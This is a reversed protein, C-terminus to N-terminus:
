PRRDPHLDINFIVQEGERVVVTQQQPAFGPAEFRVQYRGAPVDVQFTGDPAAALERDAVRVRIKANVRKGAGTRVTGRLSAPLAVKEPTLLVEVRSEAEPVVTVVEQGARFGERAVSLSVLGASVKELTFAGSADTRAVAGTSSTVVAGALPRKKGPAAADVAAVTGRIFGPGKPL